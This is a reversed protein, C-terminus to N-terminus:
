AKGARLDAVSTDIRRARTDAAKAGTVALVIRRRRSLSLGQWAADAEPDAAIASALDDPVDLTRPETDLALEVEVEDGASLGAAERNEASLPLLFRGGRAAVTSRYTHGPLTVTVPTQKGRGLADVVEAPVEFGTATKGGLEVTTTFRM